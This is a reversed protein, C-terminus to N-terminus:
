ISTYWKFDPHLNVNLSVTGIVKSAGVGKLNGGASEINVKKKTDLGNLVMLDIVCPGAGTDIMIKRNRGEIKGNVMITTDAEDNLTCYAKKRTHENNKQRQQEAKFSYCDKKKHGPKNCHFCRFQPHSDTGKNKQERIFYADLKDQIDQITDNQKSIMDHVDASESCEGAILVVEERSCKENFLQRAKLYIAEIANNPLEEQHTKRYENFCKQLSPKISEPLESIFKKIINTMGLRAKKEKEILLAYFDEISRQQRRSNFVAEAAQCESELDGITKIIMNQAEQVTSCETLIRTSLRQESENRNLLSPLTALAQRQGVAEQGAVAYISILSDAVTKFVRFWEEASQKEISPDPRPMMQATIVPPSFNMAFTPKVDASGNDTSKLEINTNESETNKSM